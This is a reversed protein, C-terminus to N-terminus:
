ALLPAPEETPGPPLISPSNRVVAEQYLHLEGSFLATRLWMRIYIFVQQALVMLLITAASTMGVLDDIWWYLLTCAAACLYISLALGWVSLFNRLVFHAARLAVKLMSRHSTEVAIIKAYDAIMLVLVGLFIMVGVSAIASVILPVESHASEGIGSVLTIAGIMFFVGLLLGVTLFIALLRLFRGFYEACGFFFLSLSSRSPEERLVKLIGGALFTSAPVYVVAFFMSAFGLPLLRNGYVRLGDSLTLFDFRPLLAELEASGGFSSNLVMYVAFALPTAFLLSVVYQTVVL